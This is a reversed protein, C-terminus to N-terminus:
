INKCRSAVLYMKGRSFGYHFQLQVKEKDKQLQKELKKSKSKAHKLNERIQVDELDLQNFKNKNEEIFATIKSLKRFLTFIVVVMTNSYSCLGPTGKQTWM